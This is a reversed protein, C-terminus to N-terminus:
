EHIPPNTKIPFWGSVQLELLGKTNIGYVTGYLNGLFDRSTTSLEWRYDCQCWRGLDGITRNAVAAHCKPCEFKYIHGDDSTGVRRLEIDHDTITDAM